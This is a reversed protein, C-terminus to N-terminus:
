IKRRRMFDRLAMAAMEGMTMGHNYCWTRLRRYDADDMPVLNVTHRSEAGETIRREPM